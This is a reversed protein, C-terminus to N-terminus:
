KCDPREIRKYIWDKGHPFIDFEKKEEEIWIENPAIRHVILDVNFDGRNFYFVVKIENNEIREISRIPFNGFGGIYLRPNRALLDIGICRNDNHIMKVKGWSFTEETKSFSEVDETYFWVGSLDFSFVSIPTLILILVIIIKKRLM